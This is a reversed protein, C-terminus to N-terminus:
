RGEARRPGAAGGRIADRYIWYGELVRRVYDRTERYGIMEVYFDLDEDPRQWRRAPALGANYAALAVPWSGPEAALLDRLHATGLLLNVRPSRLPAAALGHTEATSRATAEMLQLLGTAGAPSVVASEFFSERRMIAWIWEPALGFRQAASAVAAAYPTPFREELRGGGRVAARAALDPFGSFRLLEGRAEGGPAPEEELAEQAMRAWEGRGSLRFLLLRDRLHQLRSPLVLGPTGRGSPRAAELRPAAGEAAVDRWFRAPDDIGAGGPARAFRLAADARRGYYGASGRAARLLAVRASDSRGRALEIRYIWFWACARDEDGAQSLAREFRGRAGEWDGLGFRCVGRRLRAQDRKDASGSRIVEAYLSDAKEFRRLDELERAWEWLATVRDEGGGRRAVWGYHAEMSDVRGSNRLARATILNWEVAFRPVPRWTGAEHRRLLLEYDRAQWALRGGRLSLSDGGGADLYGRLATECSQYRVLDGQREAATLLARLRPPDLSDPAPGGPPVMAALVRRALGGGPYERVVIWLLSEAEARRGELLALRRRHLLWRGREDARASYSALGARAADIEGAALAAQIAADECVIRLWWPLAGDARLRAQAMTGAAATDGAALALEVELAVCWASDLDPVPGRALWARAADRQGRAALILAAPLTLAGDENWPAAREATWSTELLETFRPEGQLWGELVRRRAWEDVSDRSSPETGSRAVAAVIEGEIVQRTSDIRALEALSLDPSAARDELARWATQAERWAPDPASLASSAGLLLIAPILGTVRPQLM